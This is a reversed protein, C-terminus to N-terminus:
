TGYINALIQISAVNLNTSPLHNAMYTPGTLNPVKNSLKWFKSQHDSEVDNPM